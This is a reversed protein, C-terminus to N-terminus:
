YLLSAAERDGRHIRRYLAEAYYYDGYMTSEDVGSKRPYDVTTHRILGYKDLNDYLCIDTEAQLLRDSREGWLESAAEDGRLMLMESLLAMGSCAISAAAADIPQSPDNRFTFDWAPMLDENLHKWFYDAVRVATDLYDKRGSYRYMNSFGYLAWAQGRSWCSDASFGQHTDGFITYDTDWRVVHYTSADDRVALERIRDAVSLCLEKRYPSDLLEGSIWLIPLNMITDVISVGEYGAEGWARILGTEPIYQQILNDAGAHILPLYSSDGTIRHGLACSPGFIFGQDHTGTDNMRCRLKMAWEKIMADMCADNRELRELWLLGIWFGGTWHGNQNTLWNGKRTIHPFGDLRDSMRDVKQFCRSLASKYEQEM